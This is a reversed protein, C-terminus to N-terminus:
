ECCLSPCSGIKAALIPVNEGQWAESFYSTPCVYSNRESGIGIKWDIHILNEGLNGDVKPLYGIVGGAAVHDGAAVNLWQLADSEGFQIFPEFTYQVDVEKAVALFVVYTNVDQGQYTNAARPIINSIIGDSVAVVPVLGGSYGSWSPMFDWGVHVIDCDSTINYIGLSRLDAGIGNPFQLPSIEFKPADDPLSSRDIGDSSGGGGGSDSSSGSCGQIGVVVIMMLVALYRKNM